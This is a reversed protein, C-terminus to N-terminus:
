RMALAEKHTTKLWSFSRQVEVGNFCLNILGGGGGTDVITESDRDSRHTWSAAALFMAKVLTTPYIWLMEKM